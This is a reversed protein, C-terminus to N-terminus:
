GSPDMPLEGYYFIEWLLLRGTDRDESPDKLRLKQILMLLLNSQKLDIFLSFLALNRPDRADTTFWTSPPEEKLPDALTRSFVSACVAM